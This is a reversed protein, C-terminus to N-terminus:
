ATCCAHPPPGGSGKPVATLGAPFAGVYEVNRPPLTPSAPVLIANSPLLFAYRVPWVEEDSKGVVFEVWVASPPLLSPNTVSILAAPECRMKEVKRPPECFSFVRGTDPLGLPAMATSLAPLM